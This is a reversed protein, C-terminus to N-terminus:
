KCSFPTLPAPDSCKRYSARKNGTPWKAFKTKAAAPSIDPRGRSNIAVEARKRNPVSFYNQSYSM